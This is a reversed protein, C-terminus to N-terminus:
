LQGESPHMFAAAPTYVHKLFWNCVNWFLHVSVPVWEECIVYEKTQILMKNSGTVMESPREIM